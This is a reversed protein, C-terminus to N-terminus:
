PYLSPKGVFDKLFYKPEEMLYKQALLILSIECDFSILLTM